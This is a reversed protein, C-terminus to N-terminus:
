RRTRGVPLRKFFGFGGTGEQVTGTPYVLAIQEWEGDKETQVAILHNHKVAANKATKIAENKDNTELKVESKDPLIIKYVMGRYFFKDTLFSVTPIM